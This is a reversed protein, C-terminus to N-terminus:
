VGTVGASESWLPLESQIVGQHGFYSILSPVLYFRIRFSLVNQKCSEFSNQSPKRWNTKLSFQQFGSDKWHHMECLAIDPVNPALSLAPRDIKTQDSPSCTRAPKYIWPIVTFCLFWTQIIICRVGNPHIQTQFIWTHLICFASSEINGFSFQPNNRFNYM